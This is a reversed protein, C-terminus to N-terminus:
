KKGSSRKAGNERSEFMEEWDLITSVVYENMKEDIQESVQQGHNLHEEGQQFKQMMSADIAQNDLKIRDSESMTVYDDFSIGNLVSDNVGDIKRCFGNWLTERKSMTNLVESDSIDSKGLCEAKKTERVRCFLDRYRARIDRNDIFDNFSIGESVIHGEIAEFISVDFGYNKDSSIRLLHQRMQSGQLFLKYYNKQDLLDSYNEDLYENDGLGNKYNKKIRVYDTFFSNVEKVLQPIDVKDGRGVLEPYHLNSIKKFKRAIKAFSALSNISRNRLDAQEDSFFEDRSIGNATILPKLANYAYVAAAERGTVGLYGSGNSLARIYVEAAKKETFFKLDYVISSM